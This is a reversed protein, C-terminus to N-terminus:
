VLEIHTPNTPLIDLFALTSTYVTGDKSAFSGRIPFGDIKTIVDANGGCVKVVDGDTFPEQFTSGHDIVLDGDELVVAYRLNSM